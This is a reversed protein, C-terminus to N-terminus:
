EISTGTDDSCNRVANQVKLRSNGNQPVPRSPQKLDAFTSTFHSGNQILAAHSGIEFGFSCHSSSADWRPLIGAFEANNPPQEFSNICRQSAMRLKKGVLRPMTQILHGYHTVTIQEAGIRLDVLQGILRSPVSYTNTRVRITSSSSVANPRPLLGWPRDAKHLLLWLDEAPM